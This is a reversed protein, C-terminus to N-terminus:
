RVPRPAVRSSSLRAERLRELGIGPYYHRLIADYAHGEKAMELAGTQCMGVGHGNGRGRAVVARLKGGQREEEVEFSTSRLIRDEPRRLVWRIRDGRLTHQRGGVTVRMEKVRNSSNRAVIAVAEVEGAPAPGGFEGVYYRALLASLETTTWREQWRYHRSFRCFDADSGLRDPHPKLYDEPPFSWTEEVAASLGGCAASYYAGILVGGYTAVIGATGTVARTGSETEAPIGGYVQDREDGHLDFGLTRWRSLHAIAYTRAAVAQAKVAEFSEAPPNGIELPVVGKLYDELHLENVAVLGHSGDSFILVDGRLAKGELSLSSGPPPTVRLTDGVTRPSHGSPQIRLGTAGEPECTISRFRGITAGREILALPETGSTRLTKAGIAMGVRLPRGPDIPAPPAPTEPIEPGRRAACGAGIVIALALGAVLSIWRIRM